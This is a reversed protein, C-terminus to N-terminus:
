LGGAWMELVGKALELADGFPVTKHETVGDYAMTFPKEVRKFVRRKFRTMNITKNRGIAELADAFFLRWRPLCYEGVVGAWQKIAYDVIEGNPGWLTIQNRANLDLRQREEESHAWRHAMQLWPGLVFRTDTSLILEMSELADAIRDSINQFQPRDKAKLATILSPYLLDIRTQLYQRTIDVLDFYQLDNIVSDESTGAIM